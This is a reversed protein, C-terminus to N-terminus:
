LCSGAPLLCWRSCSGSDPTQRLWSCALWSMLRWRSVSRFCRMCNQGRGALFPDNFCASLPCSHRHVRQYFLRTNKRPDAVTLCFRHRQTFKNLKTQCTCYEDFCCIWLM